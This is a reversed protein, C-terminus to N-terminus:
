VCLVCECLCVCRRHQKKGSPDWTSSFPLPIKVSQSEEEENALTVAESYNRPLDYTNTWDVKAPQCCTFGFFDACNALVGRSCYVLDTYNCCRCISHLTSCLCAYM